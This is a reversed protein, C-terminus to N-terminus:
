PQPRGEGELLGRAVTAFIAFVLRRLLGEGEAQPATAPDFRDLDDILARLSDQAQIMEPRPALPITGPAAPAAALAELALEARQRTAEVQAQMAVLETRLGQRADGALGRLQVVLTVALALVIVALLLTANLLAVFLRKLASGTDSQM